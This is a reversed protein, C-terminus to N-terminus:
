AAWGAQLLAMRVRVATLLGYHTSLEDLSTTLDYQVTRWKVYALAVTSKDLCIRNYPQGNVTVPNCRKFETTM